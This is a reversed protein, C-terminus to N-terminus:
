PVLPGAGVIRFALIGLGVAYLVDVWLRSLLNVAYIAVVAPVGLLVIPSRRWEARSRKWLGRADGTSPFAHAGVAVGLWGLVLGAALTERSATIGGTTRVLLALGLFAAFAVATNAVFPAVSIAFLTRYREPQGHRVYGPPDGLGVYKVEQVPVGVLDCTQKHAVEHVVVGPIALLRVAFRSLVNFGVMGLAIVAVAIAAYLVLDANM